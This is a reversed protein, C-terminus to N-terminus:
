SPLMGKEKDTADTQRRHLAEIILEACAAVSFESVNIILDYHYPVAPDKVFLERFSALRERDIEEVRRQADPYAIGLQQSLTLVRWELPAMLRVRLTTRIPLIFTAGRGVIVCEGHAGLALETKILQQLYASESISPAGAFSEFAELMWHLRNEDLTELLSSHLGMEQAIREMLEHDYVPWVLRRGVERAVVTGQTGAERSLAITFASPCPSGSEQAAKRRMGWHHSLHEMTAAFSQETSARDM